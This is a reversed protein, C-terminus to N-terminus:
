PNRGSRISAATRRPGTGRCQGPSRGAGGHKTMSDHGTLRHPFAPRAASRATPGARPGGAAPTSPAAGTSSTASPWPGASCARPRRRRFERWETLLLLVDAGAAADLMSSAYELEPHAQRARDMAAPDYVTVRAGLSHVTAPWTSPPPTGSTTPSPSSRAAWCPSRAATSRGGAMELALDVMRARRRLNIADVEGCSRASRTSASSAARATFARIDKPLCGGGFGLGPVCSGRRRDPQRPGAGRGAARHRRGRGRLGRGDRQHVLDQHGPVRQGRGQGARRHAPRHGRVAGRRGAAQRVGRAAPGRGAGLRGRGRDPGAAPHRGRRLGRAPVRPELGARRRARGPRAPGPARGAGRRHRGPRHIERRGPLAPDAPPALADVCAELHSLDAAASDPRQPTGVCVFHIDGFEAAEAYSTTFRLRGSDLGAACCTRSAPSTSRCAARPWRRSRTEDTDLGLVEFGLEAMCAAHTAGLYGTGLVTIRPMM